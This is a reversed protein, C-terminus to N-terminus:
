SEECALEKFAKRAAHAANIAWLVCHTTDTNLWAICSYGWREAEEVHARQEFGLLHSMYRRNRFEELTM